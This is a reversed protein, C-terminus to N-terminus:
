DVDISTWYRRELYLKKEKELTEPTLTPERESVSSNYEESLTKLKEVDTKISSLVEILQEKNEVGNLRNIIGATSSLRHDLDSISVSLDVSNRIAATKETQLNKLTIIRDFTNEKDIREPLRKEDFLLSNLEINEPFIKDGIVKLHMEYNSATTGYDIWGEYCYSPPVVINDVYVISYNVRFDTYVDYDDNNTFDLNENFKFREFGLEQLKELVILIKNIDKKHKLIYQYLSQLGASKYANGQWDYNANIFRTINTYKNITDIISKNEEYFRKEKGACLRFKGKSVDWLKFVSDRNYKTSIFPKLKRNFDEFEDIIHCLAIINKTEAGAPYDMSYKQKM